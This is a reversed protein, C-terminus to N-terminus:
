EFNGVDDLVPAKEVYSRHRGSIESISYAWALLVQKPRRRAEAKLIFERVEIALIPRCELFLTAENRLPHRDQRPATHFSPASRTKRFPLAM